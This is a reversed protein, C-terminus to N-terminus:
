PWLSFRGCYPLGICDGLEGSRRGEWPKGGGEGWARGVAVAFIADGAFISSASQLGHLTLGPSLDCLPPVYGCWHLVCPTVGDRHLLKSVGRSKRLNRWHSSMREPDLQDLLKRPLQCRRPAAPEPLPM